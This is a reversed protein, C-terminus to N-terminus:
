SNGEQQDGPAFRRTFLIESTIAERTRYFTMVDVTRVVLRWEVPERHRLFQRELDAALVAVRRESWSAKRIANALKRLRIDRRAAGRFEAPLDYFVEPPEFSRDGIRLIEVEAIVRTPAVDSFLSWSFFPFIEHKETAVHGAVAIFGYLAFFLAVSAQLPRTKM